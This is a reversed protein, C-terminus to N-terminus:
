GFYSKEKRAEKVEPKRMQAFLSNLENKSGQWIRMIEVIIDAEKKENYEVELPMCDLALKSFKDSLESLKARDETTMSKLYSLYMRPINNPILFLDILGMLNVIKEMMIKRVFRLLTASERDIKEIEFAENLEKFAPLKYKKQLLDYERILDKLEM